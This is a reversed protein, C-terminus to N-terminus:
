TWKIEKKGEKLNAHRACVFLADSLRNLYQIALAPTEEGAEKMEVCEREARRCITRAIHLTAGLVGGGPLIFNRLPELEGEWADIQHEMHEITKLNVGPEAIPAEGTDPDKGERLNMSAKPSALWSGITFLDAQVKEIWGRRINDTCQAAALGLMSNLEDVTGYAAVRKHSKAVRMGGFLSTQGKDGGRTYIKM